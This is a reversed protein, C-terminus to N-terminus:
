KSAGVDEGNTLKMTTTTENNQTMSMKNVTLITKIKETVSSETVRGAVNNFLFRGIGEQSDIKVDVGLEKAPQIDVRTQLTIKEMGRGAQPDPGRYTFTKDLSMTGIPSPVSTQKTWGKGEALDEKPLGLSSEKIMNKLGDETFMTPGRGEAGADRIVASVQQPVKVDSLEGMPSMKFSFEAGVLAKILPVIASAGPVSPEKGDKSDFELAGFPSDIRTRIRTIKQILDAVGDSGVAKVSWDWYITQSLTTKIDRGEATATTVTKQDMVYHLTEGPQFKWRLTSARAETGNLNALSSLGVAMGVLAVSVKGQM